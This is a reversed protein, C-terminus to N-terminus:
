SSSSRSWRTARSTSRETSSPGICRTPATSRSYRGSTFPNGTDIGFVLERDDLKLRIDPSGSDAVSFPITHADEATLGGRGLILRNGPYDYTLLLEAFLAFGLIGQVQGGDPREIWEYDGTWATLERFTAGGLRLEDVAVVDREMSTQGDSNMITGTKVLGLERVLEHDVSAEGSHYTDVQFLYPGRGNVFVEVTAHKTGHTMPVIVPDEALEVDAAALLLASALVLHIMVRAVM